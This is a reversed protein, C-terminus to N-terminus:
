IESASLCKGMLFEEVAMWNRLPIETIIKKEILFNKMIDMKLTAYKVGAMLDFQIQLKEPWFNVIIYVM